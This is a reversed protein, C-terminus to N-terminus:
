LLLLLLSVSFVSMDLYPKDSPLMAAMKEFDEEAEEQIVDIADDITIIGVLREENDVVPLALFDYKQLLKTVSEQDDSTKCCIFTDDMLDGVLVDDDALLLEKVSVVGLLKRTEDTVYCTYIAEKDKGIRRIRKIAAEIKTVKTVSLTMLSSSPNPNPEVNPPDSKRPTAVERGSTM